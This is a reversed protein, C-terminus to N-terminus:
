CLDRKIQLRFLLVPTAVQAIRLPPEAPLLIEVHAQTPRPAAFGSASHGGPRTPAHFSADRPLREVPLNHDGPGPNDAGPM